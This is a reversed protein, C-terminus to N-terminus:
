FESMSIESLFNREGEDIHFIFATAFVTLLLSRAFLEVSEERASTKVCGPDNAVGISGTSPVAM